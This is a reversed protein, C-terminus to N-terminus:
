AAPAAYSLRLRIRNGDAPIMDLVVHGDKDSSTSSADARDEGADARRTAGNTDKGFLDVKKVGALKYLDFGDM